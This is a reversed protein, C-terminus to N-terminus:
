ARGRGTGVRPLASLYAIGVALCLASTVLLFPSAGDCDGCLRRLSQPSWLALPVFGLGRVVLAIGVVGLAPRLAPLRRVVGAGSYGYAAVVFLVTAIVLCTVIPRMSGAEAMAVLRPPAGFFAYWGPGGIPIALHVLAGLLVLTAAVALAINRTPSLAEV